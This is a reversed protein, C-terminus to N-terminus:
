VFFRARQPLLVNEKQPFYKGEIICFGNVSYPFYKVSTGEDSIFEIALWNINTINETADM